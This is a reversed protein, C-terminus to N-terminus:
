AQLVEWFPSVAEGVLDVMRAASGQVSTPLVAPEDMFLGEVTLRTSAVIADLDYGGELFAVIRNPPVIHALASAMSAYDASEVLLGGLPDFRHADYGASVLIWDPDFADVVPVAIRGFAALYSASSTGAPLAINVTTGAGPGAGTETVWGTGPYFPFEHLSVYLVDPDRYFTRQTGNGHHVDWDVIAVRCGMARLHFATVAVNNFFCFGMAESAEAHHGPPRVAVFATDAVGDVLADVAAPGGGAAHLAAIWTAEVAFTDADIAGGGAACFAEVADIYGATHVRELAARDAAPAALEVVGDPFSRLGRIAAEVRAPREPHGRPTRHELSSEHTVLLLTMSAIRAHVAGCRDM